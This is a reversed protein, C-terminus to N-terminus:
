SPATDEPMDIRLAPDVIWGEIPDVRDKPLDVYGARWGWAAQAACILADIADGMHDNETDVSAEVRFGFRHTGVPGTLAGMLDHRYRTRAATQANSQDSKYSNRGILQRAAFGPYAEFVVRQRDGDRHMPLHVGSAHLRASAEFFMLAVPTGYLTQPSQSGALQDCQRRHQKDGFPRDRKYTELLQRFRARDGGCLHQVLDPWSGIDPYHNAFKRAQGLPTDIGLVWPGPAVLASEFDDLRVWRQFERLTLTKNDFTCYAAIIPKRKSPTSSFDVGIIQM